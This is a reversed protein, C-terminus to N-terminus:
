RTWRSLCTAGGLESAIAEREPDVSLEAILENIDGAQSDTAQPSSYRAKSMTVSRVHVKLFLLQHHSSFALPTPAQMERRQEAVGVGSDTLWLRGLLFSLARLLM